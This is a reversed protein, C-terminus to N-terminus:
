SSKTHLHLFLPLPTFEDESEHHGKDGVLPKDLINLAPLGLESVSTMNTSPKNQLGNINIVFASCQAVQMIRM